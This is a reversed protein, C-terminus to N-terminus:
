RLHDRHLGPRALDGLRSQSEEKEIPDDGAPSGSTTRAGGRWCRTGPLLLGVLFIFAVIPVNDAKAIIFVFNEDTLGFRLLLVGGSFWWSRGYGVADAQHLVRAVRAELRHVLLGSCGGAVAVFFLRPDRCTRSQHLRKIADM